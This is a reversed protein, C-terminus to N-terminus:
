QHGRNKNCFDRKLRCQLVGYELILALDLSPHSTVYEDFLKQLAKENNDIVLSLTKRVHKAQVVTQEIVDVAEEFSVKNQRYRVLLKCVFIACARPRWSCYISCLNEKFYRCPQKFSKKSDQINFDPIRAVVHLMDEDVLQVFGFLTGNCCLGCKKCLQQEDNDIIDLHEANSCPM